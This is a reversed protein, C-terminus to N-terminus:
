TDLTDQPVSNCVAYSVFVRACNGLDIVNLMSIM